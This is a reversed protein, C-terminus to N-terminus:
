CRPVWSARPPHSGPRAKWVVSGDAVKLAYVFGNTDGFYATTGKEGVSIATKVTASAKFRWWMCGTASDLAYVTGDESGVYLKGGVSTPQGYTAAAGPFGFAWKFKLNSKIRDRDLGATSSPEFAATSWMGEGARGCPLIRTSSVLDRACFGPSRLPRPFM